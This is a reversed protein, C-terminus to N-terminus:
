ETLIYGKAFTMLTQVEMGKIHLKDFPEITNACGDYQYTTKLLFRQYEYVRGSLVSFIASAM